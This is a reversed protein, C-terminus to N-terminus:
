LTISLGHLIRYSRMAKLILAPLDGLECELQLVEVSPRVTAGPRGSLSLGSERTFGSRIRCSSM